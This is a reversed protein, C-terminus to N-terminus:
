DSFQRCWCRHFSNLRLNRDNWKWKLWFSIEFHNEEESRCHTSCTVISEIWTCASRCNIQHVVFVNISQVQIARCDALIIRPHVSLTLDHFKDFCEFCFKSLSSCINRIKENSRWHDQCNMSPVNREFTVCNIVHLVFLQRYLEDVTPWRKRFTQGLKHAPVLDNHKYLIPRFCAWSGWRFHVEIDARDCCPRNWYTKTMYSMM